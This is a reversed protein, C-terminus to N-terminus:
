NKTSWLFGYKYTGDGFVCIWRNFYKVSNRTCLEQCLWQLASLFKPIDADIMFIQHSPIVSKRFDPWLYMKSYNFYNLAHNSCLITCTTGTCEYVACNWLAVYSGLSHAYTYAQMFYTPMIFFDVYMVWLCTAELYMNYHITEEFKVINKYRQVVVRM